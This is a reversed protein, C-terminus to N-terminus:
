PSIVSVAQSAEWDTQFTAQLKALVEEDAVLIGVERNSELAAPSCNESGIFAEQGDVMLMKAHMYLQDDERVTVGGQLLAAIGDANPDAGERPAPLIVQVRVGRREAAVLAEEIQQDKMEEEEILLRHQAEGILRQLATRANGPSIVLHANKIGSATATRRWDAEFLERLSSVDEPWSDIIGYERNAGSRNGGLAARSFNGTMIYARQNDVIMLKAHTLPFAPNTYRALVGAARLQEIIRDPSSAGYPHPELMVRVTLGRRAADELARIVSSDTLLYIEIALSRQASAIAELIVREGAQPEVFVQVGKVGSDPGSGTVASPVALSSALSWHAALAAAEPAPLWLAPGILLSLAFVCLMLPLWHRERSSLPLKAM